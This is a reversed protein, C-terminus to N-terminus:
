NSRQYITKTTTGKYKEEIVEFIKDDTKSSSKKIYIKVIPLAILNLFSGIPKLLKLFKM